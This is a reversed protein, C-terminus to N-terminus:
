HLISIKKSIIQDEKTFVIIYEGTALDNTEINFRALLNNSEKLVMEGLYNYIKISNFVESTIIILTNNAPNPYVSIDDNNVDISSFGTKYQCDNYTPKSTTTDVIISNDGPFAVLAGFYVLMMEDTTSEGLIVLQPPSNPNHPNATTNDYTAVGYVVSNAPLRLPQRFQYAGQWHFDWKPINVLPITDGIPTVAFAKVSVGVLHM